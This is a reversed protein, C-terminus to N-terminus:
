TPRAKTLRSRQTSSPRIAPATSTAGILEDAVSFDWDEQGVDADSIGASRLAERFEGM